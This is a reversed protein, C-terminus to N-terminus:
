IDITWYDKSPGLAYIPNNMTNSAILHGSYITIWKQKQYMANIVKFIQRGVLEDDGDVVYQIEGFQCIKQSGYFITGMPKWNKNSRILTVKDKTINRWRLHRAILETTKDSSKDDIIVVRYNTYNQQIISELNWLYRDYAQNKYSPVVVCM